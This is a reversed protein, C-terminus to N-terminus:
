AAVRAECAADLAAIWSTRLTDVVDRIDVDGAELTICALAVFDANDRAIAHM